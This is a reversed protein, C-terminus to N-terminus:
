TTAPVPNVEGDIVLDFEVPVKDDVTVAMPKVNSVFGTFDYRDPTVENDLLPLTLRMPEPDAEIMRLVGLTYHGKCKITGSDVLKGPMKRRSGVKGSGARASGLHSKDIVARQLTDWDVDTIQVELGSNRFELVTGLGIRPDQATM